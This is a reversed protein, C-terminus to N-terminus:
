LMTGRGGPLQWEQEFANASSAVPQGHWLSGMRAPLVMPCALGRALCPLGMTWLWVRSHLVWSSQMVCSLFTLSLSIPSSFLVFFCDWDVRARVASSLEFYQFLMLTSCCYYKLMFVEVHFQLFDEWSKSRIQKDTKSKPCKEGASKLKNWCIYWCQAAIAICIRENLNRKM